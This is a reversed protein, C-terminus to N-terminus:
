KCYDPLPQGKMAAGLIKFRPDDTSKPKREGFFDWYTWGWKNQQMKDIITALWCGGNLGSTLADDTVGFEGVYIPVNYKKQFAIVPELAKDIKGIDRQPKFAIKDITNKPNNLKLGTLQTPVYMHFSYVINDLGGFYPMWNFNIPNGYIGFGEVIIYKSKDVQQIAKILNAIQTKYDKATGVWEKPVAWKGQLMQRQIDANQVLSKVLTPENMLDFGTVTPDDKFTQAITTWLTTINGWLAEDQWVKAKVTGPLTHMDIIVQLNSKKAMNVARKLENIGPSENAPLVNGNDNFFISHRNEDPDAHVALRVINAGAAAAFDFDSQSLNKQGSNDIRLPLNVGKWSSPEISANINRISEISDSNDLKIVAKNNTTSNITKIIVNDDVKNNLDIFLLTSLILLTKLM